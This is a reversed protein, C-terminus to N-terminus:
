SHLSVYLHPFHSQKGSSCSKWDINLKELFYQLSGWLLPYVLLSWSICALLVYSHLVMLTLFTMLVVFSLKLVFKVFCINVWGKIWEARLEIHMQSFVMFLFYLSSVYIFSNFPWSGTQLTDIFLFSICNFISLAYSHYGIFYCISIPFPLGSWYEQRSFGVSLPAQYAVTWSTVFIRVRCLSKVKKKVIFWSTLQM